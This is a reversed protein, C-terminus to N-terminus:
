YTVKSLSALGYLLAVGLGEMEELRGGGVGDFGFQVKARAHSSPTACRGEDYYSVWSVGYDYEEVDLVVTACEFSAAAVM